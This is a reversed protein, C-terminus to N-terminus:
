EFPAAAPVRLPDLLTPRPRCRYRGTSTVARHLRGSPVGSRGGEFCDRCPYSPPTGAVEVVRGELNARRLVTEHDLHGRDSCAIGGIAADDGLTGYARAHRAPEPEEAVLNAAPVVADDGVD